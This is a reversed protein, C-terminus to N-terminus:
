DVEYGPSDAGRYGKCYVPKDSTGVNHSHWTDGQKSRPRMPAHHKQCLRWGDPLDDASAVPAAPLALPPPSAYQSADLLDCFRDVTVDAVTITILRGRHEVTASLTVTPKKKEPAAPAAQPPEPLMELPVAGVLPTTTDVRPGHLAEAARQAEQRKRALKASANEEIRPDDGRMVDRGAQSSPVVPM